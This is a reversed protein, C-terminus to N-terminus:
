TSPRENVTAAAPTSTVTRPVRKLTARDSDGTASSVTETCRPRTSALRRPEPSGLRSIAAPSVHDVATSAGPRSCVGAGEACAAGAARDFFRRGRGIDRGRLRLVSRRGLDAVSEGLQHLGAFKAIRVSRQPRMSERALELPRVRLSQELERICRAEAAVNAFRHRGEVSQAALKAAIRPCGQGGELQTPKAHIAEAIRRPCRFGEGVGDREGWRSRDSFVRLRPLHLRELAHSVASAAGLRTVGVKRPKWVPNM